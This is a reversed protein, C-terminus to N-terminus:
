KRYFPEGIFLSDDVIAAIVVSFGIDRGGLILSLM